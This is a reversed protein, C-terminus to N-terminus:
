QRHCQKVKNQSALRSAVRCAPLPPHELEMPGMLPNGWLGTDANLALEATAYSIGKSRAVTQIHHLGKHSIAHLHQLISGCTRCHNHCIAGCGVVQGGQQSRCSPHGKSPLCAAARFLMGVANHVQCWCLHAIYVLSSTRDVCIQICLLTNGTGTRAAHWNYQAGPM